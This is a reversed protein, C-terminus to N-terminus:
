IGSKIFICARVTEGTQDNKYENEMIKEFDNRMNMYWEIDLTESSTLVTDFGYRDFIEDMVGADKTIAMKFVDDTATVHANIIGPAITKGASEATYMQQRSDAFVKIGKWMLLGSLGYPHLLRKNENHCIYDFMDQNVAYVIEAKNEAMKEISDYANHFASASVVTLYLTSIIMFKRSIKKRFIDCNINEFIDDFMFQLYPFGYIIYIYTFLTLAKVTHFSLVLMACISGIIIVDKKEIHKRLTYGFSMIIVIIIIANIYEQPAWPKWESILGMSKMRSARLLNALQYPGCPNICTGLLFVIISLLRKIYYRKNREEKTIDRYAIDYLLELIIQIGLLAGFVFWMGAHFNSIWLGSLFYLVITKLGINKKGVGQLYVYLYIPFIFASYQTPRNMLNHPFACELICFVVLFLIPTKKDKQHYLYGMIFLFVKSAASVIFYGYTGSLREVLYLHVGFLWEQQNWYTGPLWSYTNETIIRHNEIADKGMLIHWLNDWDLGIDSILVCEVCIIWAVVSCGWILNRIVKNRGITRARDNEIDMKVNRYKM